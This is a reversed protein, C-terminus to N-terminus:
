LGAPNSNKTGKKFLVIHIFNLLTLKALNRSVKKKKKKKKKQIATSSLSKFDRLAVTKPEKKLFFL